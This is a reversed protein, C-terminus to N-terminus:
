STSKRRRMMMSLISIPARLIRKTLSPAKSMERWKETVVTQVFERFAKGVTAPLLYIVDDHVILDWGDPLAGVIDKITPWEELVHPKPPPALFLRADDVLIVYTKNNSFITELEELLPCEDSQGYTDGGSWHADLWFLINDNSDLVSQLYTRTDGKLMTINKVNGITSRATAFMLESREVTIVKGFIGSAVLATGGRYTGGEFFVSLSMFNRLFQVEKEPAGFHILGM